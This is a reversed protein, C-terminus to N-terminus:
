AAMEAAMPLTGIAAAAQLPVVGNGLIKLAKNRREIVGTVHGEPLMMMWEVFPPSLKGDVTPAPAERGLVQEHRDIAATYKRWDISSLAEHEITMRLDTVTPNSRNMKGGRKRELHQEATGGPQNATPTPLRDIGDGVTSTPLTAVPQRDSSHNVPGCQGAPFQAAGSGADRGQLRISDADATQAVCFWRERRHCAGVDSARLCTWRATAGVEALARLVEGLWWRQIVHTTSEDMDSGCSPCESRWAIADGDKGWETEITNSKFGRWGCRCFMELSSGSTIASVNELILWQAGTERWLRIVDNIIWRSDGLGEGKGAHSMAQCPFGATMIDVAPPDTVLTLDGLNPAGPHHHNIVQEPGSEIESFWALEHDIGALTLGMEIGGYGACLAATRYTM